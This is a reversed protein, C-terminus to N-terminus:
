LLPVGAGLEIPLDGRVRPDDFIEIARAYARFGSREYFAVAKPHDLTCTHLWFRALPRAWAADLARNMLLRAAGTGILEPAVGFYVLECEGPVRFDLEALGVDRGDGDRLVEIEVRPDDLIKSLEGDELRLRTAWLQTGGVRRYLARYWDREPTEVRRITWPADPVAPRLEPRERSELYTVVAALKGAPVPHYGDPIHVDGDKSTRRALAM